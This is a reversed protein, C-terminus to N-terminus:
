IRRTTEKYCKLCLKSWNGGYYEENKEITIECVSCKQQKRARKVKAGQGIYLHRLNYDKRVLKHGEGEKASHCKECILALNDLTHDGGKSIPVKHHIHINSVVWGIEHPIQRVGTGYTEVSRRLLDKKWNDSGRFHAIKKGSM